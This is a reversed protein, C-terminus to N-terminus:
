HGRIGDWFWCILIQFVINVPKQIYFLALLSNGSAIIVHVFFVFFFLFFVFFFFMIEGTMCSVFRGECLVGQSHIKKRCVNCFVKKRFSM